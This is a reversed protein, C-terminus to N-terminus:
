NPCTIATIKMTGDDNITQRWCNGNPSKMIVGNNIDEIYIDGDAVQMRAVPKETGVGLNGDNTLRMREVSSNIENSGLLFKIIGEEGSARVILGSGTSVVQGFDTYKDGDFDYTESCHQLTTFSNPEGASLQMWAISRNSLSQNNIDLYNRSDGSPDNGWLSLKNKPNSTGIGVNGTSSIRMREPSAQISGGALFKIVGDPADARMILGRGSSALIGFDTYKDGDFDYTESFHQLSTASNSAGATLEMWVISRNSTSKNNLHIYNRASGTDDTGEVSLKHLPRDTGIGVNGDNYHIGNANEYWLSEGGSGKGAYLAYPVSLLQSKGLLTFNSGGDPDMEIQIYHEASGWDIDELQGLQANGHGVETSFVGFKNTLVYHTEQYVISGPLAGQLISLQLSINKETLPNGSGDRAIGQYNFAQPPQATVALTVILLLTTLIISKM